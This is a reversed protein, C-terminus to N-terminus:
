VALPVPGPVALFVVPFQFQPQNLLAFLDLGDLGPMPINKELFLCCVFCSDTEYARLHTFSVAEHTYSGGSVTIASALPLASSPPPSPPQAM